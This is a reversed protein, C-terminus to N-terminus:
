DKRFTMWKPLFRWVLWGLAPGALLHALLPKM